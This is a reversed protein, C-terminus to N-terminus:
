VPKSSAALAELAACAEGIADVAAARAAFARCRDAMATDKLLMSLERSLKDATYRRLPIKRAVGMRVLRDTNDITDFVLGPVALQPIGAVIAQGVTGIGAHHVVAAAQPLLWGFPAYVAHMVSRPLGTPIQEPYRTVLIGRRGISACAQAAAAYLRAAQRVGSGFTFVIPRDSPSGDSAELFRKLEDSAEREGTENAIFGLLKTQSPWDPQMPAFWEPWFCLISQPSHMWESALSRVRPLSLESRLADIEPLFPHDMFRDLTWFQLRKAPRPLWNPVILCPATSTHHLSRLVAPQRHITALPIGLHEQAIRAGWAM